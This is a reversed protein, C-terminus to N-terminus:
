NCGQSSYPTFTDNRICRVKELGCKELDDEFMEFKNICRVLPIYIACYFNYCCAMKGYLCYRCRDVLEESEESGKIVERLPKPHSDVIGSSLVAEGVLGLLAIILLMRLLTSM